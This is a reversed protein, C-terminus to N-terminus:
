LTIKTVFAGIRVVFIGKGLISRTLCLEGDVCKQVPVNRGDITCIRIDANEPVGKFIAAEPLLQCVIGVAPASLSASSADGFKIESIDDIEIKVPSDVSKSTIVLCGESVTVEPQNEILVIIPDSVSTNVILVKEKDAISLFSIKSLESVRTLTFTADTKQVRMAKEQANGALACLMFAAFAFFKRM